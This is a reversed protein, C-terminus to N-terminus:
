RNGKSLNDEAWLPQLNTYHCAKLYEQKDKLNFSDMPVIHDMHWGKLGYNDWNMGDTFQAELHKKLEDPSCGLSEITGHWKYSGNLAKNIRSRAAQSLRRNIDTKYKNKFYKNTALKGKAARAAQDGCLRSCYINDKRKPSFSNSCHACDVNAM